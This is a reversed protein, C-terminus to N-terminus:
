LGRLSDQALNDGVTLPVIILNGCYRLLRAVIVLGESGDTTGDVRGRRECFGQTESHVTNTRTGEVLQQRTSVRIRRYHHFQQQRPRISSTTFCYLIFGIAERRARPNTGSRTKSALHDEIIECWMGTTSGCLTAGHPRM